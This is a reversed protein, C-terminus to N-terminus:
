ENFTVTGTVAVSGASITINGNAGNILLSTYDGVGAIGLLLAGARAYKVSPDDSFAIASLYETLAATFDAKVQAITRSGDLVITGSVDISVGIAAAVTVGAGVPSKGEGMAEIPDIYEQVNDVLTSSAPLKNADIIIVKVTGPGNWLPLVQAGGVGDVELAWRMYDAKNGSTAPLKVEQFFRARYEDDSEKETGPILADSLTATVLNPVYDIPLMAGYYQNGVSGLVECRLEFQGTVIKQIVAYTIGSISFRSGIPVDLPANDAAAFIGKRIAYTAQNRTLGFPETLDDLNEDHATQPFVAKLQSDLEVYVQALEMAAPALADYIVSGPRKDLDNPVRGMMRQLITGFTQSEYM